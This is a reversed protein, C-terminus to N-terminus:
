IFMEEDVTVQDPSPRTGRMLFQLAARVGAAVGNIGRIPALVGKQVLEVTEQARTLADDVVIEARELQRRTRMSADQLVEEVTAM